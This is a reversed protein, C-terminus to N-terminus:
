DDQDEDDDEEEITQEILGYDELHTKVSEWNESAARLLAKEREEKRKSEQWIDQDIFLNIEDVVLQTLVPPELADLEWSEDGFEEAYAAFRPDTDKAPNTPPNYQEVQDMNLAIRRVEIPTEAFVSLRDIIDQTMAIGSPDHDGMHIICIQKGARAQAKLFLGQARMESLSMYGKCAMWPVRLPNCARELVNSLADKEVWVQLYYPQTEWLDRRYQNAVASMIQSPSSWTSVSELNRGRDEIASWDVMGGMRAKGLINGLKKYNKVNNKTGEKPDIWTDPFLDRAICQYYLQRVTLTYRAAQYERIVTNIRDIVIKADEQPRYIEYIQKGV